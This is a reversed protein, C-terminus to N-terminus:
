SLRTTTFKLLIGRFIGCKSFVALLFIGRKQM